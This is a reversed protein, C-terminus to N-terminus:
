KPSIAVEVHATKKLSFRVVKILARIEVPFGPFRLATSPDATRELPYECVRVDDQTVIYKASKWGLRPFM